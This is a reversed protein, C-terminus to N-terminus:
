IMNIFLIKIKSFFHYNNIAIPIMLSQTDVQADTDVAPIMAHAVNPQVLGGIEGPVNQIKHKIQAGGLIVFKIAIAIILIVIM